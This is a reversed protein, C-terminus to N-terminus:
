GWISGAAICTGEGFRQLVRPSIMSYAAKYIAGDVQLNGVRMAITGAHVDGYYIHWCDQRDAFRRRILDPMRANFRPAPRLSVGSWCPLYFPRLATARRGGPSFLDKIFGGM